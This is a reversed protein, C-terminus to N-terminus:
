CKIFFLVSSQTANAYFDGRWIYVRYNWEKWDLTFGWLVSDQTKSLSWHRLWSTSFVFLSIKRSYFAYDEPLM